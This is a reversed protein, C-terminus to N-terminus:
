NRCGKSVACIGFIGGVAAGIILAARATSGPKEGSKLERVNEYRVVLPNKGHDDSVVFYEDSVQTVYGKIKEGDRLKVSVRKASDECHTVQSKLKMRELQDRAIPNQAAVTGAGCFQLLMACVLLAKLRKMALLLNCIM